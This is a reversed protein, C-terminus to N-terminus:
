VLTTMSKGTQIGAYDVQYTSKKQNQLAADIGHRDVPLKRWQKLADVGNLRWFLFPQLLFSLNILHIFINRM